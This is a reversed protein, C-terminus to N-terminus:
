VERTQEVSTRTKEKKEDIPSVEAQDDIGASSVPYVHPRVPRRSAAFALVSSTLGFLFTFWPLIAPLRLYNVHKYVTTAGLSAIITQVVSDPVTLGGLTADVQASRNAFFTTFAVLSAFLWTTFFAMLLAFVRLWRAALSPVSALVSVLALIGCMVTVNYGSDLVDSADITVSAGSPAAKKLNREEDHFKVLANIGVSMGIVGFAFLLLLSGLLPVRLGNATTRSM